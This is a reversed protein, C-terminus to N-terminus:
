PSKFVEYWEYILRNSTKIIDYGEGKLIVCNGKLEIEPGPEKILQIVAKDTHSCDVIPRSHCIQSENNSCAGLPKRHIAVALNQALESMATSFYDDSELPDFTIYVEEQDFSDDLFGTIKIDELEKPGFHLPVQFIKEQFQVETYWLNDFKVFSFGNYIYGQDEPLNGDINELFLDNYAFM